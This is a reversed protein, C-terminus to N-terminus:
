LRRAGVDGFRERFVVRLAQRWRENVGVLTLPIDARLRRAVARTVPHFRLTPAVLYLQPPASADLEAGTFYGRRVFDGQRWHHLAHLWYTLGQWIVDADADAKLELVALRGTRTLTLMDAVGVTHRGFHPCQGQVYAPDLADDIVNVQRRVVAELWREPYARYLPHTADRAMPTRHRRLAAILAQFDARTSETLPRSSEGLTTLGFRLPLRTARDAASPRCWRACELGYWRVAFTESGVSAVECHADLDAGFWERLQDLEDPTPLRRVWRRVPQMVLPTQYGVAVPRIASWDAGAEYLELWPADLPFLCPSLRKAGNPPLVLRICATPHRGDAASLARGLLRRLAVEDADPTTFVLWSTGAHVARWGVVADDERQRPLAILRTRPPLQSMLWNRVRRRWQALTPTTPPPPVDGATIILRGREAGARRSVDLRIGDDGVDYREVRWCASRDGNWYTVTLKGYAVAFAVQYCGGDTTTPTVSQIHLAKDSRAM